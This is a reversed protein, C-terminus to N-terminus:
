LDTEDFTPPIHHDQKAPSLIDRAFEEADASTLEEINTLLSDTHVFSGFTNVEGVFRLIIGAMDSTYPLLIVFIYYYEGWIESELRGTQERCTRELEDHLLRKQFDLWPAGEQSVLVGNLRVLTGEGGLGSALAVQQEGVLDGIVNMRLQLEALLAWERKSGSLLPILEEVARLAAISNTCAICGFLRRLRAETPSDLSVVEELEEILAEENLRIRGSRVLARLRRIYLFFNAQRQVAVPERLQHVHEAKPLPQQPLTPKDM